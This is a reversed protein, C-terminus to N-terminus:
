CFPNQGLLAARQKSVLKRLLLWQMEETERLPIHKWAQIIGPVGTTRRHGKMKARVAASGAIGQELCTMTM